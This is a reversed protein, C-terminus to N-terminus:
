RETVFLGLLCLQGFSKMGLSIVDVVGPLIRVGTMVWPFAAEWIIGRNTKM